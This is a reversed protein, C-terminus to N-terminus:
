EIDGNEKIKKDEYVDLMRREIEHACARLEACYNKITNYSETNRLYYRCYAFLLYNLEGDPRVNYNKMTDLVPRLRDRSSQKVYPM